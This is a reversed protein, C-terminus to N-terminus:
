VILELPIVVKSEKMRWHEETTDWYHERAQVQRLLCKEDNCWDPITSASTFTWPYHDFDVTKIVGKM